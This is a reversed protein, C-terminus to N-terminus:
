RFVRVTFHLCTHMRLIFMSKARRFKDAIRYIKIEYYQQKEPGAGFGNLAFFTFLLLAPFIRYIVKSKKM